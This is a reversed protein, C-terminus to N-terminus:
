RPPQWAPDRGFWGALRDEAAADAPVAVEEGFAKGAGRAEPRLMQQSWALAHATIEPDLSYDQGTARVLDWDHMALETIQHDVRSRLPAERGGPVIVPRDLDAARWIDLLEDARERFVVTWDAPLEDAPAQWDATEGQASVIFNRLDKVVVHRMLERVDWGVCPTPLGLQDPRIAAIITATQDLARQLLALTDASNTV